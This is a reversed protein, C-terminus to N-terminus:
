VSSNSLQRRLRRRIPRTFRLMHSAWRRPRALRYKLGRAPVVRGTSTLMWRAHAVAHWHSWHGLLAQNARAEPGTWIATMGGAHSYDHRQHILPVYATADVLPIGRDAADWLLWNDYWLRGIAFPPIDTLQGRPFVFWDVNIESRRRGRRQVAQKIESEWEPSEFDLPARVDLDSREGVMLFRTSWEGVLRAASMSESTLIIDANVFCVLPNLALSQAQELMDSVLPTGFASTAVSTVHGLSLRNCIDKTGPEDGFLIIQPSPALKTWSTIANAQILGFLGDFAKPTSFITLLQGAERQHHGM